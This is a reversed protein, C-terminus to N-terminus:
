GRAAARARGVQAAHQSDFEFFLDSGDKSRYFRVPQARCRAFFEVLAPMLRHNSFKVFRREYVHLFHRM